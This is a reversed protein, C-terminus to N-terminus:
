STATSPSTRGQPRCGSPSSCAAGHHATRLAASRSAGPARGGDHAAAQHPSRPCAPRRTKGACKARSPPLGPRAPASGGDHAAMQRPCRPCAPLRAKGAYKMRSSPLGPRVPARGEDHATVQRPCRSCAPLRAKGACKARSPLLGPRVSFRAERDAGDGPVTAGFSVLREAPCRPRRRLAEPTPANPVFRQEASSHFIFLIRNPPKKDSTPLM